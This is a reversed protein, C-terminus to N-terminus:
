ALCFVWKYKTIPQRPRYTDLSEPAAFVANVRLGQKDRIENMFMMFDEKDECVFARMDQFSIQSEVYKAHHPDKM